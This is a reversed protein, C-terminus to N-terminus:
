YELNGDYMMDSIKFRRNLKVGNGFDAVVRVNNSESTLFPQGDLTRPFVLKAGTRDSAPPEYGTLFLRKGDGRELYCRSKLTEETSSKIAEDMIRLFRQDKSEHIVAVAIIETYDGNVFNNLQEPKLGPNDLLVRRAFAERIPKASFFMIHYKYDISQNNSAGNVNTAQGFTVTMESTDTEVQTQGWASDYLMKEVEKKTWEAWPKSKQAITLTTLMTVVLLLFTAKKM